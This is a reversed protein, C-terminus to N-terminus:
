GRRGDKRGRCDTRPHLAGEPGPRHRPATKGCNMKTPGFKLRASVTGSWSWCPGSWSGAAKGACCIPLFDWDAAATLARTIQKRAAQHHQYSFQNELSKRVMQRLEEVSDFGMSSLFEQNLEPAKLQKVELVEFAANVSKGRLAENPADQTLARRARPNRRGQGREDAQRVKRDQRRPLEADSAPSDSGGAPQLASRRQEQVGSQVLMYDNPEAPSTRLPGIPRSQGFHNGLPSDIDKETFEHMPRDISLGKWEPLDFEPRVELDFEFTLPGDDPLEVATPDFDPESIAAFNEDETIQAMSDMLLSGKVQDAVDKRFRHEILKRRARGPM